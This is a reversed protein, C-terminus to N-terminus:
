VLPGYRTGTAAWTVLSNGSVANGAAGGAYGGTNGANGWTGGAGSYPGQVGCAGANYAAGPVSYFSGSLSSNYGGWNGGSGALSQTLGSAGAGGCTVLDTGCWGFISSSGGGGGGGAITGSNTITVASTANIATGGPQGVAAYNGGRGGMGIIYGNNIFAVGNPFSGGITLAATGTVNSSINASSTILLYDSGNWGANIALTRLDQPTSYNGSLNMAFQRVAGYFNTLTIIGSAPVTANNSTVYAGNKYYESLSIPNVGGFETQLNSLSLIGTSPLAM